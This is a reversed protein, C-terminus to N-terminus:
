SLEEVRTIGTRDLDLVLKRPGASRYDGFRALPRYVGDIYLTLKGTRTAGLVDIKTVRFRPEWMEIAACIAGFYPVIERPTILQGLLNPVSSGFWERLVREGFRSTFIVSLSQLVRAWDTVTGGTNRDLGTSPNSLTSM